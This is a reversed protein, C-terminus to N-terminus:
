KTGGGKFASLVANIVFRALAIAIAIGGGIAVVGLFLPFYTNISEWLPTLDLDLSLQGLLPLPAQAGVPAVAVLLVAAVLIFLVVRPNRLINM